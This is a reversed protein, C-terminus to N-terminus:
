AEQSIEWKKDSIKKLKINNMRSSFLQVKGNNNVLKRCMGMKSHNEHGTYVYEEDQLVITDGLQLVNGLKGDM